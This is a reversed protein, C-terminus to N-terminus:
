RKKRREFYLSAVNNLATQQYEAANVLAIVAGELDVGKIRGGQGLARDRATNFWQKALKNSELYNTFRNM